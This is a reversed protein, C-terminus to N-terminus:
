SKSMEKPPCKEVWQLTMGTKTKFSSWPLYTSVPIRFGPSEKPLLTSVTKVDVKNWPSLQASVCTNNRKTRQQQETALERGVRQLGM